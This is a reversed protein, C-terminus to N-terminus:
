NSWLYYMSLAKPARVYTYIYNHLRLYLIQDVYDFHVQSSDPVIYEALKSLFLGVIQGAVGSGTKGTDLTLASTLLHSPVEVRSCDAISMLPLAIRCLQLAILVLKPSPRYILFSSPFIHRNPLCLYEFQFNNKFRYSIVNFKKKTNVNKLLSVAKYFFQQVQTSHDVTSTFQVYIINVIYLTCVHM